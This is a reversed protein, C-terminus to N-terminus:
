KVLGEGSGGIWTVFAVTAGESGEADGLGAGHLYPTELRVIGARPDAPPPCGRRLFYPSRHNALWTQSAM